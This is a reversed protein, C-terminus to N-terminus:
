SPSWNQLSTLIQKLPTRLREAKAGDYAFPASEATLHTSQALEM